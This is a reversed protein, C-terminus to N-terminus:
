SEGVSDDSCRFRTACYDRIAHVTFPSDILGQQIKHLLEVSLDERLHCAGSQFYSQLRAVSFHKATSYHVSSDHRIFPHDGPRLTVTGDTFRTCTRVMVAVVAPPSGEPDTLIVWLHPKDHHEHWLLITRGAQIVDM